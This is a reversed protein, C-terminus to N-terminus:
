YDREHRLVVEHTLSKLLYKNVRQRIIEKGIETKDRSQKIEDLEGGKGNNLQGQACNYKFTEM